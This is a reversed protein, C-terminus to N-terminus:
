GICTIGNDTSSYGDLCSCTYSGDTNNCTQACGGDNTACEDIDSFTPCFMIVM